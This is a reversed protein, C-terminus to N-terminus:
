ETIEKITKNLRKNESEMEKFVKNYEQKLKKTDLKLKSELMKNEQKVRSLEKRLVANQDELRLGKTVVETMFDVFNSKLSEIGWKKPIQIDIQKINGVGTIKALDNFYKAYPKPITIKKPKM